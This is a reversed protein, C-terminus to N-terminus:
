GACAGRAVRRLVKWDGVCFDEHWDGPCEGAGTRPATVLWDAPALSEGSEDSVLVVRRRLQTGFFPSLYDNPRAAFAISADAPVTREVFRLVDIEDDGPRLQGQQEVRSRTWISQRSVLGPDAEFLVAGWPKGMSMALSMAMSVTALRDSGMDGRAM